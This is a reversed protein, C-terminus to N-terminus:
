NSKFASSSSLQKLTLFLHSIYFEAVLQRERKLADSSIVYSKKCGVFIYTTRKCFTCLFIESRMKNLLELDLHFPLAYCHFLTGEPMIYSGSKNSIIDAFSKTAHIFRKHVKVTVYVRSTLHCRWTKKVLSLKLMKSWRPGENKFVWLFNFLSSPSGVSFSKQVKLAPPIVLGVIASGSATSGRKNNLNPISRKKHPPPVSGGFMGSGGGGCTSARRGYSSPVGLHSGGHGGMRGMPPPM